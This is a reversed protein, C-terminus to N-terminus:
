GLKQILAAFYANKEPYRLLLKSYIFKAQEYYGQDVYIQALTETCFADLVEQESKEHVDEGKAKSAFSSFINDDSKRVSDYEDQSFFDGGVVRTRHKPGAPEEGVTYAKLLSDLNSDSYDRAEGSRVLDSIIRRSGMYLAATAYDRSGWGEGGVRSMRRCLEKRAAGFWPYLNVVGALEDINLSELRIIGNVM